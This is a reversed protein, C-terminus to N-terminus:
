YALAVKTRRLSHTRRARAELDILAVGCGAPRSYRRTSIHAGPYARRPIIRDDSRRGRVQLPRLAL